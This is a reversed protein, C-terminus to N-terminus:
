RSVPVVEDYEDYEEDEDSTEEDIWLNGFNLGMISSGNYEYRKTFRITKNERNWSDEADYNPNELDFKVVTICYTEFRPKENDPNDQIDVEFDYDDYDVSPNLLKKLYKYEINDFLDLENIAYNLNICNTYSM